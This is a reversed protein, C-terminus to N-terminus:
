KKSDKTENILSSVDVADPIAFMNHYVERMFTVCEIALASTLKMKKADEMSYTFSYDEHIFDNRLEKVQIIKTHISQDILKNTYLMIIVAELTLYKIRDKSIPTDNKKFHWILIQKGYYEFITCAYSLLKYYDADKEARVLENLPEKIITWSFSDSVSVNDVFTRTIKKSNHGCALYDIDYDKFHETNTIEITKDCKECRVQM